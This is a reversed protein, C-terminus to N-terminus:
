PGDGEEDEYHSPLYCKHLNRTGRDVTRVLDEVARNEIPEACYPCLGKDTVLAVRHVCRLPADYGVERGVNASQCDVEGEPTYRVHRCGYCASTTQAWDIGHTFMTTGVPCHHVEMQGNVSEMWMGEVLGRSTSRHFFVPKGCTRCTSERAM